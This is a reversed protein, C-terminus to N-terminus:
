FLLPLRPIRWCSKLLREKSLSLRCFSPNKKPQFLKKSFFPIQNEKSSKGEMKNFKQGRLLEIL